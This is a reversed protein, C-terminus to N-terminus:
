DNEGIEITSVGHTNGCVICNGRLWSQNQPESLSELILEDTISLDDLNSKWYDPKIVFGGPFSYIRFKHKLADEMIDNEYIENGLFDYLGTFQEIVLNDTQVQITDGLNNIFKASCVGNDLGMSLPSTYYQKYTKDFFRFKLKM